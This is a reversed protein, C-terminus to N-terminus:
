IKEEVEAGGRASDLDIRCVARVGLYGTGLGRCYRRQRQGASRGVADFPVHGPGDEAVVQRLM